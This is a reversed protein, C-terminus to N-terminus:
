FCASHLQHATCVSSSYSFKMTILWSKQASLLQCGLACIVELAMFINKVSTLIFTAM